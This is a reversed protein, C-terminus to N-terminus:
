LISYNSMSNKLIKLTVRFTPWRGQVIVWSIEEFIALLSNKMKNCKRISRCTRIDKLLKKSIVIYMYMYM